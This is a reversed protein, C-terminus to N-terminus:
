FLVGELAFLAVAAPPLKIPHPQSYTIYIAPIVIAVLLLMFWWTVSDPVIKGSRKSVNVKKTEDRV